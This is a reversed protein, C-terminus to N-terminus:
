FRITAMSPLDIYGVEVEVSICWTNINLSLYFLFYMPLMDYDAEWDVRVRRERANHHVLSFLGAVLPHTDSWLTALLVELGELAAGVTVWDM